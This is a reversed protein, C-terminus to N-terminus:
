VFSKKRGHIVGDFIFDNSNKIVCEGNEEFKLMGIDNGLKIHEIPKNLIIGDTHCRVVKDINPLIINSIKLRGSAVIFVGIRGFNTEYRDEKRFVTSTHRAMDYCEELGKFSPKTMCIENGEYIINTSVDIENKQCLAGWLANIYKKIEHVGQKKFPFLYDIFPKFISAISRLKDYIMANCKSDEILEIEYHLM